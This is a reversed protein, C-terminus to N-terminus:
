ILIVYLQPHKKRQILGSQHSLVVDIEDEVVPITTKDTDEVQPTPTSSGSGHQSSSPSDRSTVDQVHDLEKM